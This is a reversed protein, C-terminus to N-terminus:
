NKLLTAGTETRIIQANQLTHVGMIAEKTGDPFSLITHEVLIEDNEYICRNGETVLADNAMMTRLMELMESKNMTTGSQHRVFVFDDHYLESWADPDRNDLATKLRSFVSM